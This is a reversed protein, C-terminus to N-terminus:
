PTVGTETRQMYTCACPNRSARSFTTAAIPSAAKRPRIRWPPTISRRRSSAIRSWWAHAKERHPFWKRRPRGRCGSHWPAGRDGRSRGHRGRLARGFPPCHPPGPFPYPAREGFVSRVKRLAYSAVDLAEESKEFTAFFGDGTCKMFQLSYKESRHKIIKALVIVLSLFAKDGHAHIFETSGCIDLVLLAESKKQRPAVSPTLISGSLVLSEIGQDGADTPSLKMGEPVLVLVSRGISITDREVDLPKEESVRSATSIRATRVAPIVSSSM